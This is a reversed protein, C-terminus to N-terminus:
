WVPEKNSVSGTGPRAFTVFDTVERLGSILVPLVSVIRWILKSSTELSRTCTVQPSQRVADPEKSLSTGSWSSPRGAFSTTEQFNLRDQFAAPGNPALKHEVARGQRRIEHATLSRDGGM